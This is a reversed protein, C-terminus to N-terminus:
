RDDTQDQGAVATVVNLMKSASHDRTRDNLWQAIRDENAAHTKLKNLGEFLAKVDNAPIVVGAALHEVLSAMEGGKGFVLIPTRSAVYEYFKGQIYRAISPPNLLLLGDVQTMLRCAEPKPIPDLSKIVRPFPFGALLEIAGPQKPGIFIIELREALEPHKDLMQGLTDLFEQPSAMAGLNGLYALTLKGQGIHRHSPPASASASFDRPDWGNYVVECRSPTLATFKGLNHQKQSETTYIVRSAASLCRAEWSRNVRDKKVFGFPCETWEDRYDLILPWGFQRSLWLGAVFNHFPPGSALIVGPNEMDISARATNYVSLANLIGGDINPLPWPHAGRTVAPSNIVSVGTPIKGLLYHGAETITGPQPGTVVFVEWGCEHAHRVFSAPRYVGGTVKPPFEWALVLIRKGHTAKRTSSFFCAANIKAFLLLNPWVLRIFWSAWARSKWYYTKLVGM